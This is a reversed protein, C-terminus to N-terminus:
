DADSAETAAMVEKENAWEPPWPLELRAILPDVENAEYFGRERIICAHCKRCPVATGSYCTHTYSLDQWCAPGLQKALEVTEKKTLGMLPIDLEIFNCDEEEFILRGEGFVGSNLAKEIDEIFTLRCDPYGGFDAECVGTVLKIHEIDGESFRKAHHIAYNTAYTFFLINRCPVFTPEIGGPLDEPKEYQGLENGGPVLPSTSLLPTLLITDHPIQNNGAIISAQVVERKHKQSYSFSLARHTAEPYARRAWHLCTTSDQGGSLVTVVLM